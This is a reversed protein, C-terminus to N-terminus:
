MIPHEGLLQKKLNELTGTQYGVIQWAKFPNDNHEEKKSYEVANDIQRILRKIDEISIQKIKAM